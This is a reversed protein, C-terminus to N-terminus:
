IYNMLYNEPREYGQVLIVLLFQQLSKGLQSKEPESLHRYSGYIAVLHLYLFEPNKVNKASLLAPSLLRKDALDYLFLSANLRITLDNNNLCKVLLEFDKSSMKESVALKNKNKLIGRLAELIGL